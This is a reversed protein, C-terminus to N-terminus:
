VLDFRNSKIQKQFMCVTKIQNSKFKTKSQIIQSQKSISITQKM